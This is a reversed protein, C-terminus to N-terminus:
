IRDIDPRPLKYLMSHFMYPEILNTFEYNNNPIYIRFRSRQKVISANLHYQDNLLDKLRIVEEQTFNDTCFRVAKSRNKWKLAGDDMFWYALTIPHLYRHILKPLVKKGDKYFMHFFVSLKPSTMTQFYCKEYVTEGRTEKLYRIPTRCFQEFFSFKHQLYEQQKMSHLVRLRATKGDSFTQLNADGLMMGILILKLNRQIKFDSM